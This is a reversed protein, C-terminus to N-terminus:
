HESDAVWVTGLLSVSMKSFTRIGALKMNGPSATFDATTVTLKSQLPSVPLCQPHQERSSTFSGPPVHTHTHTYIHTHTHTYIHTHTHTNGTRAASPCTHTMSRPAPLRLPPPNKLLAPSSLFVVSLVM